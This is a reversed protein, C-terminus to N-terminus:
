GWPPEPVQAGIDAGWREESALTQDGDAAAQERAVARLPEYLLGRATAGRDARV